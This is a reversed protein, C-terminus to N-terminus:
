KTVPWYSVATIAGGLNLNEVSDKRGTQEIKQFMIAFPATQQHLRQIEEYMARRKDTDGEIVAAEVMANM